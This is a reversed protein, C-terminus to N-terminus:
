RRPDRSLGNGEISDLAKQVYSAATGALVRTAARRLDPALPMAAPGMEEAAIAAGVVMAANGGLAKRLGPLIARGSPDIRALAILAMQRESDSHNADDALDLLAPIASEAAPGIRSLAMITTWSVSPAGSRDRLMPLLAQVAAGGAQGQHGIAEIADVRCDSQPHSLLEVLRALQPAGRKTNLAKRMMALLEPSQKVRPDPGFMRAIEKGEADLVLFYTRNRNVGLRTSGHTQGNETDARVLVFRSALEQFGKDAPLAQM